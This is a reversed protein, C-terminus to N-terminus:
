RAVDIWAQVEAHSAYHGGHEFDMVAWANHADLPTNRRIAVMAGNPSVKLSKAPYGEDAM